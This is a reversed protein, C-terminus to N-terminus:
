VCVYILDVHVNTNFYCVAFHSTYLIFNMCIAVLILNPISM